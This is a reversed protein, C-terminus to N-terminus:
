VKFVDPNRESVEDFQTYIQNLLEVIEMPEKTNNCFVSFDVIGSMMITVLEYRKAAVPKKSRLDNAVPPPLISYLLRDALKKEYELERSTQQLIDTVLELNKKLEHEASHQQSILILDRTADHIPIDSLYMGLYISYPSQFPAKRGPLGLFQGLM